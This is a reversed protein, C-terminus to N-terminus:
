EITSTAGCRCRNYDGRFDKSVHWNHLSPVLRHILWDRRIRRVRTRYYDDWDRSSDPLLNRNRPSLGRQSNHSRAFSAASRRDPM